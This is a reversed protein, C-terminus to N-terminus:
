KMKSSMLMSMLSLADMGLRADFLSPQSSSSRRNQRNKRKRARQERHIAKVKQRKTM